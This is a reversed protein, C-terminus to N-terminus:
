RVGSLPPQAPQSTDAPTVAVQGNWPCYPHPNAIEGTLNYADARCGGDCMVNLPCEACGPIVSVRHHRLNRLGALVPSRTLIDVLEERQINGVVCDLLANCPIIDGNAKIALFQYGAGCQFLRQPLYSVGDHCQAMKATSRNEFFCIENDDINMDPRLIRFSDIFEKLEHIESRLPSSAVFFGRLSSSSCHLQQILINRVGIGYLDSITQQM